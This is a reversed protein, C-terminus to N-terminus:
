EASSVPVLRTEGALLDDLVRVANRLEQDSSAQHSLRELHAALLQIAHDRSLCIKDRPVVMMWGQTERHLKLRWKETRRHLDARGNQISAAQRIELEAWGSRGQITIAVVVVEDAVSTTQSGRLSTAIAREGNAHGARIAATRVEEQLPRARSSVFITDSIETDAPALEDKAEARSTQASGRDSTADDDSVFRPPLDSKPGSEVATQVSEPHARLRASHVDDILYRYFRPHGRRAWYKSRYDEIAFGKIVSSYFSHEAPDVVIGMHGPWVVLDGPQPNKVRQFADVGDFIAKSNAYEYELGAQQYVAHVFHSCDPKSGLGKRLEWAAQVVAEGQTRSVPRTPQDGPASQAAAPVCMFTALLSAVVGRTNLCGFAM